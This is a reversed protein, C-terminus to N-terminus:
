GKDGKKNQNDNPAIGGCDKQQRDNDEGGEKGFKSVDLKNKWRGTLYYVVAAIAAVSWDAGVSWFIGTYGIKGSLLKAVPLRIGWLASVSIILASLTDGAGRLVGTTVFMISAVIFFPSVIMLYRYGKDLVEPNTNFLMIMYKGFLLIAAITVVSILGSIKLGATFGNKVREEKRAGLNQAVFASVAMSINMAPMIGFAQIRSGATYAAIVVTGFSNIIGQLVVFSVSVLMQQVGTPLGIRITEMLIKRDFQLNRFSIKVLYHTKNLYVVGFIFSFLQSIITAWAAGAVGLHLVMIFVIDLIINLITAIILFYLPTKSDGLGRLIASIYNYGVIGIMGLFIVKLYAAAEPIIEPPTKLWVLLPKTVLLGVITLFIVVIYNAILGTDMTKVVNNYDKAGYFQSILISSGMGIGMLLAIILFIIPFSVGVAALATEGLFRGVIIGDVTNYLQQLVNGILMPLAFILIIKGENGQTLDKM